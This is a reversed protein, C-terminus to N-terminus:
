RGIKIKSILVEPMDGRKYNSIFVLDDRWHKVSNSYNPQNEHQKIFRTILSEIEYKTIDTNEIINALVTQRQFDTQGNNKRVNYGLQHIKSETGIYPKLSNNTINLSSYDEIPCLIVGINKIKEYDTKLVFFSDCEKCYSAPIFFDTIGSSIAIRIKASVDVLHHDSKFCKRNYTLVIATIGVDM